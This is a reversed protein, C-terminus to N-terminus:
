GSGSLAKPILRYSASSDGPLRPAAADVSRALRELQTLFIRRRRIVLAGENQLEGLTVTVTERTSGIISALDQHSLRIGLEVGDPTRRGYKEALEVLLSVLRDRNSRFLLSKLRREIRRRRLGVLRTVGLTLDPLEAMLAQFTASPIGVVTTPEMAEAFEERPAGDLMSLEGFVEGPDIMALVAQKGDATIHYLKIRGAAVLLVSDSAEGPSFVIGGRPLKRVRSVGEIRAIQADSLRELLPSRKLYWLRDEM